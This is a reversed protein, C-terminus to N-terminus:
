AELLQLSDPCEQRCAFGGQRCAFGCGLLNPRLLGLCAHLDDVVVCCFAVKHRWVRPMWSARDKRKAERAYGDSLTAARRFWGSWRGPLFSSVNDEEFLLMVVVLERGM